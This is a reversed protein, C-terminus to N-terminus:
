EGLANILALDIEDDTLGGAATPATEETGETIRSLLADLSTESTAARGRARISSLVNQINANTLELNKRAQEIDIAAIEAIEEAKELGKQFSDAFRELSPDLPQGNLGMQFALIGDAFNEQPDRVLSDAIAPSGRLAALVDGRLQEDDGTAQIIATQLDAESQFPQFQEAGSSFLSILNAVGAAPGEQFGEQVAGTFEEGKLSVAEPAEQEIGLGGLLGTIAEQRQRTERELAQSELFAAQDLEFKEQERADREQSLAFREQNLRQNELAISENFKQIDALREDDERQKELSAALSFGEFISGLISQAM